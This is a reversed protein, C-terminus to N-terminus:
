RRRLLAPPVLPDPLDREGRMQRLAPPEVPAARLCAPLRLLL